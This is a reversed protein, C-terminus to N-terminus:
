ADGFVDTRLAEYVAMGPRLLPSMTDRLFSEVTNGAQTLTLIDRVTVYFTGAASKFDDPPNGRSVSDALAQKMATLVDTELDQCGVSICLARLPEDDLLYSELTRRSLVGVGVARLDAVEQDTRDDRDVLRIVTTGRVLTQIAGSIGLRDSAVDAANGVSLFDTDAYQAGFIQRYCHADFATRPASNAIAPKGECLVVRSPAVLTALDDLAVDLVSAWFARDVVTPTIVVPQDFDRDRFDLFCVQEPAAIQLDKAKRIMGISHTALWLQCTDPVLAFMVELLRAQLRTHMHAEPEDICFVTNDFARRKVVFDLLLDFAAKEGGSLNKYHFDRSAGKEFFFSGEQLPDGPGRLQISDFVGGLAARVEGIFSERLEAVTSADHQGDYVGAVTASVLRQYNDSVSADNDIMKQVRPADLISGTRRLETNTFDPQNRYASRAYLIKKREVPDTPLEEHFDLKVLQQWELPPLGKKLHYIADAEGSVGYFRHWMKFADFVSSKGCGNPGIMLVLRAEPPLETIRLDTFRRFSKVRVDKLRMQHETSLLTLTHHAWRIQGYAAARYGVLM